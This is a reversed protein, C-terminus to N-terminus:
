AAQLSRTFQVLRGLDAKRHLNFVPVDHQLALQVATNTGGKVAGKDGVPPAYCVLFNSPSKLNKGLVQYVNRTHMKRAGQKLRDWAPHTKSAIEEAELVNPLNDLEVDWDGCYQHNFSPWPKYVEAYPHLDERLGTGKLMLEVGRQFAYDSGDAKGSRLIFGSLAFHGALHRIQKCVEEPTERSGIGTYFVPKAPEKFM